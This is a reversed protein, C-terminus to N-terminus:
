EPAEFEYAFTHRDGALVSRFVEIPGTASYAIRHLEVVPVGPHLNLAEAEEPTPPRAQIEERFREIHHGAEELRAYSGGPGSNETTIATGEVVAPLYYSDGLQTPENALWTRRRRVFVDAGAEIEFWDAVWAPAPVIALELIEQSWNLGASEAEAQFPAQGRERVSRAYRQSGLRVTHPRHRVFVGNGPKSDVLGEARLASVAQRATQYAVGYREMLQATSPLRAGEPLDGSRIEQRLDAAIQQSPSVARARNVSM